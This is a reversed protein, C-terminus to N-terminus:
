ISESDSFIKDRDSDTWYPNYAIICWFHFLKNPTTERLAGTQQLYRESRMSSEIGAFEDRIAVSSTWPIYKNIQQNVALLYSIAWFIYVM